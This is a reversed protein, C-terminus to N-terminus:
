RSKILKGTFYKGRVAVRYLYTGPQLQSGNFSFDHPGPAAYVSEYHVRSGLIDYVYLEVREQRPTFFAMRTRDSFPNPVSPIISFETGHNLDLGVEAVVSISLSTDDVVQVELPVELNFDVTATIHIALGFVGTETPTGNLQICYATDPYFIDANPYYDIGPPLNLVSDIEIYFITLEQGLIPYTGPPIITVTEDYLANLTADPLDLPCIEGPNGTTDVCNVTDPICQAALNDYALLGALIAILVHVAKKM